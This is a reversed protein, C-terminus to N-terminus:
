LRRERMKDMNGEWKLKGKYKLIENQEYVSIIMDLGKEIVARKTKLGTIKKAKNMLDDNVVVNTRM